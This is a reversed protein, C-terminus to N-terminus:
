KVEETISRDISFEEKLITNIVLSTMDDSMPFLDDPNYDNISRPDEFVGKLKLHQPNTNFVYVYDGDIYFRPLKNSFKNYAILSIVRSNVEYFPSTGDVGGVYVFLENNVLRITKPIKNKTRFVIKNTLNPIGSMDVPIMNEVLTQIFHSSVHSHAEMTRRLFLARYYTILDQIRLIVSTDSQKGVVEAINYSIKNLSNM